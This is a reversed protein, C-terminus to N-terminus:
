ISMEEFEVEGKSNKVSKYLQNNQELVRKPFLTGNLHDYEHQIITALFGDFKKDSPQDGLGIM